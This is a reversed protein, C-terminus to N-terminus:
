NLLDRTSLNILPVAGPGSGSGMNIKHVDGKWKKIRESEVELQKIQIFLPNSQAEVLAANVLKIGDAEATMRLVKADAEGKAVERARNAEAIGEQEMRKQKDAMASLKAAEVNKEQEAIFVNDISEQINKNEYEFQGFMGLTTITIGRNLFFPKCDKRVANIIEGKKSRLQDMNYKSSIEAVVQQVRARVEGDMVKDLSGSPYWYLFKAADSEAIYATCNFGVAFGVSDSSETWIGQDVGKKTGKLLSPSWERNEPARDIKILRVTDVFKGNAWPTFDRGTKVWRKSIRIKKASVQLAKYAEESDLKVQKSSDDELPVLFATESTDIEVFKPTEFPKIVGCGGAILGVLTLMLLSKVAKM